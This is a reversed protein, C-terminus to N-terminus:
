ASSSDTVLGLTALATLLSAWAAGTLKSGTVVPKTIPTASFFGYKPSLHRVSGDTGFDMITVNNTTQRLRMVGGSGTPQDFSFQNTGAPNCITLVHGAASADAKVNVGALSGLFFGNDVWLQDTPTSDHFTILNATQSPGKRVRVAGMTPEADNGSIQMRASGDPPTVGFGITPSLAGRHRVYVVDNSTNRTITVAISSATATANASLTLSTTGGVASITTGNPIGAGSISAGVLASTFGGRSASTLTPSGSTTVGDSFSYTGRQGVLVFDRSTDANAVDLGIFWRGRNGVWDLEPGVDPSTNNVLNFDSATITVSADFAGSNLYEQIDYMAQVFRLWDRTVVKKNAAPNAMRNPLDADGLSTNDRIFHTM